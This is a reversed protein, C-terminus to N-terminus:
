DCLQDCRIGSTSLDERDERRKRCNKDRDTYERGMLLALTEPTLDYGITSHPTSGIYKPSSQLLM